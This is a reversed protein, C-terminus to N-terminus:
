QRSAPKSFPEEAEALYPLAKDFIAYARELLPEAEATKDQIMYLEAIYILMVAAKTHEPGLVQEYGKLARRYVNERRTPTPITPVIRMVMLCSYEPYQKATRTVFYVIEVISERSAPM